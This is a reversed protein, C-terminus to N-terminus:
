YGIAIWQVASTGNARNYVDMSTTNKTTNVVSGYDISSLFPISVIYNTTIFSVAFAVTTSGGGTISSTVGWQIKKGNSYISYGSTGNVYNSVIRNKYVWYTGNYTFEIATNAPVFFPNTSGCVVGDECAIAKTGTSNVNLTPSTGTNANLFKVRITAGAILTFGPLTVVKESISSATSCIGENACLKILITNQTEDGTNNGSINDLTTKNIHTHSKIYTEDYNSKLANTLDNTTLSKGAEIDVKTNLANELENKSVKLNFLNSHANESTNHASVVSDISQKFEIDTINEYKTIELNIKPLENNTVSVTNEAM